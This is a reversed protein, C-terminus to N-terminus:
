SASEAESSTAKNTRKDYEAQALAAVSTLFALGQQGPKGFEKKDKELAKEYALEANMTLGYARTIEKSPYWFARDFNKIWEPNFVELCLHDKWIELWQMRGGHHFPSEDDFPRVLVNGTDGFPMLIVFHLRDDTAAHQVFGMWGIPQQMLNVFEGLVPDKNDADLINSM